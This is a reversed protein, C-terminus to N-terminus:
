SFLRIDILIRKHGVRRSYCEIEVEKMTASERSPTPLGFQELHTAFQQTYIHGVCVCCNGLKSTYLNTYKLKM